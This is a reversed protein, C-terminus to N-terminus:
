SLEGIRNALTVAASIGTAASAALVARVVTSRRAQGISRHPRDVLVDRQAPRAVERRLQRRLSPEFLVVGAKWKTRPATL